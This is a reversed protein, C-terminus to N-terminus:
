RLDITACPPVEDDFFIYVKNSVVSHNNRGDYSKLAVTIPTLLPLGTILFTETYGPPQPAGIYQIIREANDWDFASTDATYCVRFEYGSVNFTDACITDKCDYPASWHFTHEATQATRVTFPLIMVALLIILLWAKQSYMM